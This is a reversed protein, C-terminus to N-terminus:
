AHLCDMRAHTLLWGVRERESAQEYHHCVANAADSSMTVDHLENCLFERLNQRYSRHSDNYFPSHWGERLYPSEGYPVTSLAGPNSLEAEPGGVEALGNPAPPADALRGIFFKPGYKRLVSSKHLSYFVETIDKGAYLSISRAGGPHFDLFRTLDYVSYDIIVWCSDVTCHKAVKTTYWPHM